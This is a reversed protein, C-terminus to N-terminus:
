HRGLESSRATAAAVAAIVAGRFGRDELAALGAITTGGPSTVRDKLEAPHDGTELQLKASGYVTQAALELAVDRTLGAQVGGDALAEILLMIYAPGSGSLGTVADLGAEPVVVCRGVARFLAVAAALDEPTAHAGAALGTAGALVLAPTNPMARVVRAGAPLAAEIASTPVGAAISVVLTANGVAAEVQKLAASVKNPKTAIVLLDAWRALADNDATAKIGYQEMLHDRRQSSPDAARLQATSTAGAGLLGRVLAEAMNGGGVFGICRTSLAESM